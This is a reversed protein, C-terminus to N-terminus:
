VPSIFATVALFATFFIIFIIEEPKPPDEESLVRIRGDYCRAEMADCIQESRKLSLILLSIGLSGFSRMRTQFNRNGLRSNQATGIQLATESLLFIFRYTLMMLETLLVPFHLKRMVRLLDTLPTSLSLVYLCSVSAFSTVCMRLAQYVSHRGATVYVTGLKLAFLDSPEASLDICYAATGALLFGAPVLLLRLYRRVPVGGKRVTLLMNFVFVVLGTGASRSLICLALTLVTYICKVGANVHRLGSRCAISDISYM